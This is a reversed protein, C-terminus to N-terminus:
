YSKQLFICAAAEKMLKYLEPMRKIINVPKLDKDTWAHRTEGEALVLSNQTNFMNYSFIVRACTIKIIKTKITIIDEYRAPNKYKCVLDTLPLLIGNNEIESYSVGLEKFYDTRGEEFWIPYNSHHAISMRDIEAYKVKLVTESELM